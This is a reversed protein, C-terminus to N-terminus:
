QFAPRQKLQNHWNLLNPWRQDIEVDLLKAVKLMIFASIDAISFQNGAIYDFNSLQQELKPLIYQFRLLAEHGWADICNERQQYIKKLHRFAQSILQIGELEIVRNWMEIKGITEPSEGFLHQPCPYLADLYRCIAISECLCEGSDLTLVPVKGNLSIRKFEDKLNDGARVNIEIRPITLDNEKLFIDVRQCNPTAATQYLKM